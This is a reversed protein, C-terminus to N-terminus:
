KIDSMSLDVSEIKSFYESFDFLKFDKLKSAKEIIDIIYDANEEASMFISFKDLIFEDEKEKEKNPILLMVIEEIPLNKNENADENIPNREELQEKRLRSLKKLLKNSGKDKLFPTILELLSKVRNSIDYKKDAYVFIDNTLASENINFNELAIKNSLRAPNYINFYQFRVDEFTDLVVNRLMHITTDWTTIYNDANDDNQLAILVQNVDNQIAIMSKNKEKTLLIREYLEKIESYKEEHTRSLIEIECNKAVEQLFRMTQNYFMRDNPDTNDLGLNYMFDGFSSIREDEEFLEAKNLYNYYNFLTNRTDGLDQFFPYHEFRAYHLAKQIEGVVEGLYGSYIYFSIKDPNTEKLRMLSKMSRYFPNDWDNNDIGYYACLMYVFAPTDLYINKHRQNIYQELQNSKYLSLFSESASIKNLYNNNECLDRINMILSDINEKHDIIGALFNKFGEFIKGYESEDGTAQEDIDTSYYYKYLKKLEELICPTYKISYKSLIKSFEVCFDKELKASFSLIEQVSSYENDSLCLLKENNKDKIVRHDSKLINILHLIDPVAKDLRKELEEKLKSLEIPAKEYLISIIISEVLSNKIDSTDKGNALLDYLTKTARNISMQEPKLVIDSHLSYIYNIVDKNNLQSLRKGDFIDLEIDYEDIAFKKYEEIKEPSLSISCYFEFKSSYGFQSIMNSVKKLDNKIKTEIQQKQITVQICKKIERRNQFVRIDCGGDNTGDIIVAEQYRWYSLQVILVLEDFKEKSMGKIAGQLFTRQAKKQAM